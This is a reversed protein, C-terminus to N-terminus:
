SEVREGILLARLDGLSMTVWQDAPNGKGVRKHVVAAVVADDNGMETLAESYWTGLSLKAVDKCELVVRGGGLAPSLRM